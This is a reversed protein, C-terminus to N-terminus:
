CEGFACRADWQAFSVRRASTVLCQGICDVHGEMGGRYSIFIRWRRADPRHDRHNSCAHLEARARVGHDHTISCICDAAAPLYRYQCHLRYQVRRRPTSTSMRFDRSGHDTRLRCSGRDVCPGISVYCYFLPKAVHKRSRSAESALAFM